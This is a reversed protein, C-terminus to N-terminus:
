RWAIEVFLKETNCQYPNQVVMVLGFFQHITSNTTRFEPFYIINAKCMYYKIGWTKIFYDFMHIIVYQYTIVYEALVM